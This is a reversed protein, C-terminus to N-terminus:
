LLTLLHSCHISFSEVVFIAVPFHYVKVVGASKVDASRQVALVIFVEIFLGNLLSSLHSNFARVATRGGLRFEHPFVTVTITRLFDFFVDATAPTLEFCDEFQFFGLYQFDFRRVVLACKGNQLKPAGSVGLRRTIEM